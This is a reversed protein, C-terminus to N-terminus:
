NRDELGLIIPVTHVKPCPCPNPYCTPMPGGDRLVKQGTLYDECVKTSAQVLNSLGLLGLLTLFLFLKKM